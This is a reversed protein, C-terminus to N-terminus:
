SAPIQGSSLSRDIARISYLLARPVHFFGKYSGGKSSHSLTGQRDCYGFWEGFQDDVFHSFAYEHVRKLWDLWKDDETKCFALTLAYIAETHPWWLKMGSELQLTPHGEVDLFYNIGGCTKDWGMNLSGELVKLALSFMEPDDVFDLIHMIFWAVEISHGPNFLRGEPWQKINVGPDLPIHEMLINLDPDFHAKCKQLASVLIDKYGPNDDIAALEVAMGAMVMVDALNSMAPVGKMVPRGLMGPDLIWQQIKWFLEVAAEKYATEGTSKFYELYAMMSFVAGYPKRQYFWPEGERSLSFYYRGQDDRAHRFLFDIGLKAIKLYEPKAEYANYLRAFMWASRGVLWVYKKSDYVKGERDLCSFTGGHTWDPSNNYWFPIVSDSLNKHYIDRYEQLIAAHEKQM